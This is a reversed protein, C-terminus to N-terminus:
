ETRIKKLAEILTEFDNKNYFEIEIRGKGRKPVIKIKRGMTQAMDSELERYYIANPNEAKKPKEQSIRKYLAELDRVTLEKRITKDLLENIEKESLKECLPLFARAHGATIDGNEAADLVCKPLALLRLANAIVPRSKGVRKSIAEQTYSFTEMLRKYGLAEEVVNLDERQLNEILGIVLADNDDMEKIIVPVEQLGAMRAARWRREGSIIQYGSGYKRVIIPQLIGHESISSALDSLAERNFVRRPQDKNPEVQSTKVLKIQKEEIEVENEFFLADLGKGLSQKKLSL